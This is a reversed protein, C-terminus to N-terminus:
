HFIFHLHIRTTPRHLSIRFCAHDRVKIICTAFPTNLVGRQWPTCMNGNCMLQLVRRRHLIILIPLYSCQRERRGNRFYQSKTHTVNTITSSTLNHEAAFNKYNGGPIFSFFVGRFSGDRLETQVFCQSFVAMRFCPEYPFTRSRM